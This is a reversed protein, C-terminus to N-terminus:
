IILELSEHFIKVDTLIKVNLSWPSTSADFRLISLSSVNRAARASISCLKNKSLSTIRSNGIAETSLDTREAGLCTQVDLTKSTEKSNFSSLLRCVMFFNLLYLMIFLLDLLYTVATLFM